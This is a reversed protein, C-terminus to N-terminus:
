ICYSRITFQYILLIVVSVTSSDDQSLISIDSKSPQCFHAMSANSMADEVEEISMLYHDVTPKYIKDYQWPCPETSQVGRGPMNSSTYKM